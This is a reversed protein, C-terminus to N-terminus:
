VLFGGASSFDTETLASVWARELSGRSRLSEECVRLVFTGIGWFKLSCCLDGPEGM